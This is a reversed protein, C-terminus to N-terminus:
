KAQYPMHVLTSIGNGWTFGGELGSDAFGDRCVVSEEGFGLEELSRIRLRGACTLSLQVIMTQVTSALSYGVQKM